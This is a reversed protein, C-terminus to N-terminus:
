ESHHADTLIPQGRSGHLFHLADAYARQLNTGTLVESPPGMAILEQNLLLVQDFQESALNLDHTAVAVTIGREKLDDLIEIIARRSPVDLGSLPEDLLVIEPEQAVAQALFVRQQQGGSLDGISRRVKGGMGVRELAERVVRQDETSPRRFMGIERLRGMMVVDFVNIPFQWDVENRQPLYSVCLHEGPRHGHVVITGSSPLLIGVIVKFLTTKGAGNPGVVAVRQGPELCFNLDTIAPEGGYGATLNVAEVLPAAARHRPVLDQDFDASRSHESM